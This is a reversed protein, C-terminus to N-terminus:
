QFKDDVNYMPDILTGDITSPVIVLVEGNILIRVDQVILVYKIILIDVVKVYPKQTLKPDIWIGLFIELGVLNQM